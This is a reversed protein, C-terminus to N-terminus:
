EDSDQDDDDEEESESEKKGYNAPLPGLPTPADPTLLIEPDLGQARMKAELQEKPVKVKLFLKFWNELRPDQICTLVAPESTNQLPAPPQPAGPPPPPPPPGGMGPPPPPPPPPPIGSPTGAAQTSPLDVPVSSLGEISNLKGELLSLTVELKHIDKGVKGLKNECLIAFRNLFQTTQIVFANVLDLTQNFEIPTTDNNRKKKRGVRRSAVDTM